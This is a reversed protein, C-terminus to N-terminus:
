YELVISSNWQRRENYNKHISLLSKNSSHNKNSDNTKSLLKTHTPLLPSVFQKIKQLV